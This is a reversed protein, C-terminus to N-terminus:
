IKYIVKQREQKVILNSDNSKKLFRQIQIFGILNSIWM